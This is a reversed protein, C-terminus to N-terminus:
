AKVKYTPPGGCGLISCIYEKFFRRCPVTDLDVAYPITPVPNADENDDKTCYIHLFM